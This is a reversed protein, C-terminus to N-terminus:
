QVCTQFQASVYSLPKITAPNAIPSRGGYCCKQERPDYCQTTMQTSGVMNPINGCCHQGKPCAIFSYDNPTQCCEQIATMSETCGTLIPSLPQSSQYTPKIEQSPNPSSTSPTAPNASPAPNRTPPNKSSPAELNSCYQKQVLSGQQCCYQSGIYCARGCSSFGKPCLISVGAENTTCDHSSAEYCAGNCLSCGAALTRPERPCAAIPVLRSQFCCYKSSIYCADRCSLYGQPCLVYQRQENLTCNYDHPDYCRNGTMLDNCCNKGNVCYTSGCQMGISLTIMGIVFAIYRTWVM